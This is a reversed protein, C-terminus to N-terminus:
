KVELQNDVKGVTAFKIQMGIVDSGKAASHLRDTQNWDGTTRNVEERTTDPRGIRSTTTDQSLATLTLLSAATATFIIEINRKMLAKKFTDM